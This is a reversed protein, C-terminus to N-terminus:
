GKSESNWAAACAFELTAKLYREKFISNFHQETLFSFSKAFRLFYFSTGCLFPSQCMLESWIWGLIQRSCSHSREIKQYHPFSDKSKSFYAIFLQWLITHTLLQCLIHKVFLFRVYYFILFFFFINNKCLDTWKWGSGTCVEEWTLKNCNDWNQRWFTWFQKIKLESEANYNWNISNM